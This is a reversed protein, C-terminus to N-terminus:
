SPSVATFGFAQVFLWRSINGYIETRAMQFPSALGHTLLAKYSRDSSQTAFCFVAFGLLLLNLLLKPTLM